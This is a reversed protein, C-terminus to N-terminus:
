MGADIDGGCAVAELAINGMLFAAPYDTREVCGMLTASQVGCMNDPKCCGPVTTSVVSFADPCTPDLMGPQMIAECEGAMGVTAGCGGGSDADCCPALMGQPSMVPMCTVGGCVMTQAMM